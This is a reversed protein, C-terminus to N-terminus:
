SPKSPVRSGTSPKVASRSFSKERRGRTPAGVTSQGPHGKEHATVALGTEFGAPPLYVLSSHLRKRNYVVEIFHDLQRHADDLNLYESMYVQETKLTRFFSEAQPNNRPQGRRSMSPLMGAERAKVM